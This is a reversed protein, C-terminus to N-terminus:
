AKGHSHLNDLLSGLSSPYAQMVIYLEKSKLCYGNIHCLRHCAQAALFLAELKQQLEYQLWTYAQVTGNAVPLQKAMVQQMWLPMTAHYCPRSIDQCGRMHNPATKRACLHLLSPDAVPPSCCQATHLTGSCPWKAAEVQRQSCM